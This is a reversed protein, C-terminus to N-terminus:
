QLSPRLKAVWVAFGELPVSEIGADRLTSGVFQHRDNGPQLVIDTVALFESAFPARKAIRDATYALNKCDGPARSVSLTQVFGRTGNHRYCYDIRMPDGRFTFEEVRVSKEIKDWLKAQRWVQSCYSRMMARGGAAGVRSDRGVPAVQEAYLRDVEADLDDAYVGKPPSFQLITSLTTDWKDVLVQLADSPVARDKREQRENDFFTAVREELHDRMRRILNEDTQPQLRRLRSFEDHEEVMRLRFDNSHQAFVLVGINIWEDRVGNPAYRLLRYTLVPPHTAPLNLMTDM